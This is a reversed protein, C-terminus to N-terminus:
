NQSPKGTFFKDTKTKLGTWVGIWAIASL